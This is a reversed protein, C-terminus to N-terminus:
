FRSRLWRTLWSDCWCHGVSRGTTLRDCCQTQEKRATIRRQCTGGETITEWTKPKTETRKHGRKVPLITVSELCFYWSDPGIDIIYVRWSKEMKLETVHGLSYWSNSQAQSDSTTHSGVSSQPSSSIPSHRLGLSQPWSLHCTQWTQTVRGRNTRIYMPTLHQIRNKLDCTSSRLFYILNCM